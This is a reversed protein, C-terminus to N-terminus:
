MERNLFYSESFDPRINNMKRTTIAWHSLWTQSQLGLSQLMGLNGTRWWRETQEFEHENLRHHWRVMEDEKTRMEEQGWDKGADPDKGILLSKADPTWLIPAEAEDDTRGTFIWLQNGKPNVPKVKCYFPSELMKELVVTQFCWNKLVWAEKQDLEWM